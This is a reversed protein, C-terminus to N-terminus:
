AGASGTSIIRLIPRTVPLKTTGEECISETPPIVSYPGESNMGSLGYASVFRGRSKATPKEKHRAQQGDAAELRECTTRDRPCSSRGHLMTGSAVPTAFR